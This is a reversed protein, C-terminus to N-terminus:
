IGTIKRQNYKGHVAGIEKGSGELQRRPTHPRIDLLMPLHLLIRM